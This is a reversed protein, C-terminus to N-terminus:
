IGWERAAALGIGMLGPVSCLRGIFRSSAVVPMVGAQGSAGGVEM